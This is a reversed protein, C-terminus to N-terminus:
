LKDFKLQIISKGDQTKSLVMVKILRQLLSHLSIGNQILARLGGYVHNNM